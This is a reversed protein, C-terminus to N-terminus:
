RLLAFTGRASIKRGNKLYTCYYTFIGTEQPQGNLTGDWGKSFDNTVFVKQGWRNYILLSYKELNFAHLIKFYDNKGDKNPTFANPFRENCDRKTIIIQASKSGCSNTVVVTYLGEKRVTYYNSASGDQWLYSQFIGPNLVLSDGECIEKDTGLDPATNALVTLNLTRISDCGNAARFTDMYTGGTSYGLYSQGECITQTVTSFSKPNVTLNLTRISDCGNAARFTDMYTGGASYGLYSEGQCISHNVTLVPKPNVVLNLTRVSDCGNAARFTDTYTGGTSYGLYSEGQCITKDVTLVSKSNITVTIPVAPSETNYHTQTVYYTTTTGTAPSFTNGVAIVKSLTADNYWKINQGTVELKIAQGSCFVTNSVVKLRWLEITGPSCTPASWPGVLTESVSNYTLQGIPTCWYYGPPPLQAIIQTQFNFVNSIFSGTLSHNVFYIFGPQKTYATGTVSGNQAQTLQMSYPFYTSGGSSNQYLVGQWYGSIDQGCSNTVKLLVLLLIFLRQMYILTTLFNIFTVDSVM